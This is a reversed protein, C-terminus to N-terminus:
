PLDNLESFLEIMTANDLLWKYRQNTAKAWNNGFLLHKDLTHNWAHFANNKMTAIYKENGDIQYLAKLGRLLITNFWPSSPYFPLIGEQVPTDNVFHRYTGEATKQADFLYSEEKTITYLLVAAEIMQGSNYTYKQKDIKGKLDINDWYVHDAPDELNKKTWLYTEKAQDLFSKEQTLEYLRACLVTAPANSCTNKSMQKQECWYIGGDLNDSWGSYIFEHLEIARDLYAQNNTTEYLTCFDLAIWVNDDYFRDSNGAFVPYSQYAAPRRGTDWYKELGPLITEELLHLYKKNNTQKYMSVVGSFVGSYPWLFSVEQNQRQTTGEALYNVRHRPNVPYTESLLGHKPVNYLDLIRYLITDAILLPNNSSEKPRNQASTNCSFSTFLLVAFLIKITVRM